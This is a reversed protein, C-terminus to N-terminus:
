EDSKLELRTEVETAIQIIEPSADIELLLGRERYKQLIEADYKRVEALRNRVIEPKDDERKELKSGCKDCIGAVKPSRSPYYTNYLTGDVPCSLRNTIRNLIEDDELDFYLVKDLRMELKELTQDLLEIQSARRVAGTFIINKATSGKLYDGLLQYIMDDPVWKGEAAYKKAELALPNGKEAEDRMVQGTSVLVFNFNRALVEAQTDKGSGPPGLFLLVM